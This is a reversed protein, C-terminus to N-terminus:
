KYINEKSLKFEYNDDEDIIKEDDVFSLKYELKNATLYKKDGKKVIKPNDFSTANEKKIKDKAKNVDDPTSNPNIKSPDGSYILVKETIVIEGGNKGVFKKGYYNKVENNGTCATLLLIMFCLLVKSIKKM